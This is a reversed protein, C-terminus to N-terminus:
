PEDGHESMVLKDVAFGQARAQDRLQDVIAASLSPDRALIWLYKRNDSGVMAYDYDAGLAIIRYDGWVFPLWSLWRPAFRVELAANPGDPDAKRAIGEAERWSGDAERCRNTVAVRGDDLLEYHASTDAVCRKQFRNPLLAIEYWRGQYRELDVSDVLELPPNAFVMSTLMVALLAATLGRLASM